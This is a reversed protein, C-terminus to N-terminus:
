RQNMIIFSAHFSFTLIGRPSASEHDYGPLNICSFIIFIIVFVNRPQMLSNSNSRIREGFCMAHHIYRAFYHCHRLPLRFSSFFIYLRFLRFIKESIYYYFYCLLRSLIYIYFVTATPIYMNYLIYIYTHSSNARRAFTTSCNQRLNERTGTYIKYIIYIHINHSHTHTHTIIIICVGSEACMCRTAGPPFSERARPREYDMMIILRSGSV